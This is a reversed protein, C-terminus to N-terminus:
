RRPVDSFRTAEGSFPLVIRRRARGCAYMSGHYKAYASSPTVTTPPIGIRNGNFAAKAPDGLEM